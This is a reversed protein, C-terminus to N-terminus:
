AEGLSSDYRFFSSFQPLPGGQGGTGFHLFGGLRFADVMADFQARTIPPPAPRIPRRRM